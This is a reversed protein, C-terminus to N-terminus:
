FKIIARMVKGDRLDAMAQNINELHYPESMLLSLDLNDINGSVFDTIHEPHSCGGWSGTIKKGCILEFPDISIKDGASPHSAFICEGKKSNILSFAFEITRCSGAAEIVYDLMHKDTLKNIEEIVNDVKPNFCHTAGLAKATNLKNPNTDIAILLDHPMCSAAVLASTGIGGLGVIGLKDGKTPKVQNKVIGMGTPLACGLLVGQKMSINSPLSYCRNESVVAYQNFTTVSGANIKGIPSDYIGGQVDAGSGKLWGLVVRDGVSLKKVEPGTEVVEATGEHGLMHPLYKDEGRKGMAEMLQSHCIGAYALKVLVQGAKLQPAEINHIVQLPQNTEVLVAASFNM